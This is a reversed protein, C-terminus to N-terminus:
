LKRDKKLSDYHTQLWDYVRKVLKMDFNFWYITFTVGIFGLFAALLKLLVKM